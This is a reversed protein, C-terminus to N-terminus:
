LGTWRSPNVLDIDESALDPPALASPNLAVAIVEDLQEPSDIGIVIRAIEPHSLGFSICADLASCQHFELWEQWDIWLQNWRRFKAPRDTTKMLLLGQLFISRAHVEIGAKNLRNLWGSSILRRDVLSFPAQVLDPSFRATIDSLEEPDYISVGIKEVLGNRKAALLAAFIASGNADLLQRPDHLLVGYLRAIRLRGLSGVVSQLVWSEVDGCNRPISPIKSIVRWNKIGIDGLRSESDGYAIATDITRIGATWGRTLIEGVSHHSVKGTKNAVGYASGFQATGISLRSEM